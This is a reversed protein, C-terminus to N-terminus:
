PDNRGTPTGAQAALTQSIETRAGALRHEVEALTPISTAAGHRTVALAGAEAARRVADALPLHWSAALYGVFTDGAATTDVATVTPAPVQTLVGSRYVLAGAPGLTCVVDTGLRAAVATIDQGPGSPGLGLLRAVADLEHENVVLLDVHELLDASRTPAPAANWIVTAGARSATAAALRSTAAPIEHQLVLVDGPSLESCAQRVAADDIAANAGQVVIISNEGADDLLVLARGSARESRTLLGTNIGEAALADALHEGDHVGVAGVMRVRAGARAAAVAQNAGKGGLSSSAEQALVTEGPGPLAALRLSTDANISGVVTVRVTM